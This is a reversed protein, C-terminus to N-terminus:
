PKKAVILFQEGYWRWLLPFRVYLRLMWLPYRARHVMSYPLFQPECREIVFGRVALGECLSRETLPLFHDWFDWYRGGTFRINPGLAILKGGSRLCRFVEDLTAGLTKKDPLHEFFNSTFVVDLDGGSFPWRESCDQGLFRV